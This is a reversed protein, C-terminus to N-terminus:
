QLVSLVTPVIMALVIIIIIVTSFVRKSKKNYFNM